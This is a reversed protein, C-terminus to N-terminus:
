LQNIQTIESDDLALKANNLDIADLIKNEFDTFASRLGEETGTLGKIEGTEADVNLLSNLESASSSIISLEANSLAGFTAGQSKKEILKNLTYEGTLRKISNLFDEKIPKLQESGIGTEFLSTLLGGKAIGTSGEIARKNAALGRVDSLDKNLAVDTAERNSIDTSSLPLNNPNYGLEAVALPDGAKALAILKGRRALGDESAQPKLSQTFQALDKSNQFSTEAQKESFAQQATLKESETMDNQELSMLLQFSKIENDQDTQLDKMYTDVSNQASTFDENLMHYELTKRVSNRNYDKTLRNMRSNLASPGFSGSKNKEIEEMDEEFQIRNATLENKVRRASESKFALDVEKAKEARADATAQKDSGDLQGSVKNQLQERASLPEVPAIVEDPLNGIANGEQTARNSRRSFEDLMTQAKGLDSKMKGFRDVAVPKNQNIVPAVVQNTQSTEQLPV